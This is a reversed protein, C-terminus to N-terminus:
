RPIGRHKGSICSVVIMTVAAVVITQWSLLFSTVDAQNALNLFHFTLIPFTSFALVGAGRLLISLSYGLLNVSARQIATARQADNVTEDIVIEKVKVVLEIAQRLPLSPRLLQFAIAFCLVAFISAIYIAIM